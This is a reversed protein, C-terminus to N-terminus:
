KAGRLVGVLVPALDDVVADPDAEAIPGIALVYRAFVLGLIHTAFAAARVRADAPPVGDRELRRALPRALEIEIFERVLPAIAPDQGVSVVQAFLSPREVPSEWARLLGTLVARPLEDVPLALSQELITAPSTRIALVEALLRHKSGFYYHILAADVGADAAVDRLTTARYGVRGFRVRAAERIADRTRPSGNPRGPRRPSNNVM